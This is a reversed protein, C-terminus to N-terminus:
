SFISPTNDPEIPASLGMELFSITKLRPKELGHLEEALAVIEAVARLIRANAFNPYFGAADLDYREPNASGWYEIVKDIAELAPASTCINRLGWFSREIEPLVEPLAYRVETLAQRLSAVQHPAPRQDVNQQANSLIIDLARHLHFAPERRLSVKSLDSRTQEVAFDM